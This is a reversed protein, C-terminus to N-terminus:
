SFSEATLLEDEAVECQILEFKSSHIFGKLGEVGFIGMYPDLWRCRRVGSPFFAFFEQRTEEQRELKRELELITM